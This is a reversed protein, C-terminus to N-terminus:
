ELKHIYINNYEKAFISRKESKQQRVAMLKGDFRLNKGSKMFIENAM